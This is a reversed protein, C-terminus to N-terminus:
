IKCYIMERGGEEGVGKQQNKKGKIRWTNIYLNVEGLKDITQYIYIYM